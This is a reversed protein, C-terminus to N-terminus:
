AFEQDYVSAPGIEDENSAPALDAVIGGTLLDRALVGFATSIAPGVALPLDASASASASRSEPVTM